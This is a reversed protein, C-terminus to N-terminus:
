LKEEKEWTTERENQNSWWVKASPITTRRIEKITRDLNKVLHELYELPDQLGIVKTHVDGLIRL